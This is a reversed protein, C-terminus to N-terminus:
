PLARFGFHFSKFSFIVFSLKVVHVARLIEIKKTKTIETCALICYAQSLLTVRLEPLRGPSIGVVHMLKCIERAVSIFHLPNIESCMGRLPELLHPLADGADIRSRRPSPSVGPTVVM